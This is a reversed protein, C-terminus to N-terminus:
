FTLTDVSKTLEFHIMFFRHNSCCRYSLVHMNITFLGRNAGLEMMMWQQSLRRFRPYVSPSKSFFFRFTPSVRRQSPLAAWCESM